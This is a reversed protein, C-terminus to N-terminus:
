GTVERALAPHNTCIGDVGEAILAQMGDPRDVTWVYLRFGAQHLQAALPRDVLDRHQWLASAGAARVQGVPDLTYSGSLIGANATLRQGNATVRKIIRHDFSHIHCHDPRPAAAFLGLLTADADPPLSKLEVFAIARPTILDLAQRLTPITEGNPLRHSLVMASQLTCIQRGALEADHFVIIMGDATVHVDLEIGDAGQDLALRFAALSNEYEEASAGRHAIVLTLPRGGREPPHASRRSSGLGGLRAGDV